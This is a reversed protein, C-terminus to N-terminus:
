RPVVKYLKDSRRIKAPMPISCVDGKTAKTRQQDDIRIEVAKCEIVGTTPGTILLEDNDSVHQSEIVFEAAGAQAFYNSCKGIYIKRKTAQSGYQRSWEGTHSGMYYGEWFGRNFVTQLQQQWMNMKEETFTGLSVAEVAERYVRTTTHVYEPSRGRGEIKLMDVGSGLLKDLFPLTCLDKPSMIYENDVLIAKGTEKEILEYAKRCEQRCAGRNASKDSQHLSLYCKGSVAMCLAGHAFVEIHIRKGSPGIINQLAIQQCIHAVQQLNLERALVLTDAYQAYFKVSEINSINAQTSLHITHGMKRAMTIVAMDSAIVADVGAQAAASLLQFIHALDDDYAVINLTLYASVGRCRCRDVIEPLDDPTFNKASGSRMNLKGVGFYVADAGANIAAALAEFDGAPALIKVEKNEKM